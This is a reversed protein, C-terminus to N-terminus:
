TTAQLVTTLIYNALSFSVLIIILGIIGSAITSKAKQVKEEDGFSVMWSFGGFLIVLVTVIGLLGTAQNVLRAMVVRIDTKPLNLHDEIIKFGPDITAASALNFHSFLIIFCFTFFLIIKFKKMIKQLISIVM